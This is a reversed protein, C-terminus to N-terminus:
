GMAYHQRYFTLLTVDGETYMGDSIRGVTEELNGDTEQLAFGIDEDTWDPFMEKITSIKSGYKSKLEGLEGGEDVTM